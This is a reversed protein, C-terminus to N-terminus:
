MEEDYVLYNKLLNAQNSNGRAKPMVQVNDTDNKDVDNIFEPLDCFNVNYPYKDHLARFARLEVDCNTYLLLTCKTGHLENNIM